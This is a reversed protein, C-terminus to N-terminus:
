VLAADAIYPLPPYLNPTQYSKYVLAYYFFNIFFKDMGLRDNSFQLNHQYVGNMFLSVSCGNLDPEPTILPLSVLSRPQIIGGPLSLCVHFTRADPSSPFRVRIYRFVGPETYDLTIYTLYVGNVLRTTQVAAGGSSKIPTGDTETYIDLGYIDM